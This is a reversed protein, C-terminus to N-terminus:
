QIQVYCSPKVNLGTAKHKKVVRPVHEAGDVLDSNVLTFVSPQVKTSPISLSVEASVDREQAAAAEPENM